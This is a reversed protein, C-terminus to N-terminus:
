HFRKERLQVHKDVQWSTIFNYFIFCLGLPPRKGGNAGEGHCAVSRLVLFALVLASPYKDILGYTKDSKKWENM